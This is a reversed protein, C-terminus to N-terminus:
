VEAEVLSGVKYDSKKKARKSGPLGSDQISAKPLLVLRGCPDSIPISGVIVSISCFYFLFCSFSIFIITV